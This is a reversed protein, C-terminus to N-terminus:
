NSYLMKGPIIVKVISNNKMGFINKISMDLYYPKNVIKSNYIFFIKNIDLSRLPTYEILFKNLLERITAEANFMLLHEDFDGKFIIALEKIEEEFSEERTVCNELQPDKINEARINRKEHFNKNFSEKFSTNDEFNTKEPITLYYDKDEIVVNKLSNAIKYDQRM